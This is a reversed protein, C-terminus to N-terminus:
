RESLRRDCIYIDWMPPEGTNAAKDWEITAKVYERATQGEVVSQHEGYAVVQVRDLENERSPHIVVGIYLPSNM